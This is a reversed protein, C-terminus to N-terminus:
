WGRGTNGVWSTGEHQHQQQRPSQQHQQGGGWRQHQRGANGYQQGHQQQGAGGHQRRQQQGADGHQRQQRKGPVGMSNENSSGPVGTSISSCSLSSCNPVVMSGSSSSLSGGGLVVLRGEGSNGWFVDGVALAHLDVSPAATASAVAVLKREELAKLERNAYSTRTIESMDSRTLRPRLLTTWQEVDYVVSPFRRTTRCVEGDSMHVGLAILVKLKREARAFFM